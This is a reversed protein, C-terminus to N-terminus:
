HPRFWVNEALFNNVHFVAVEIEGFLPIYKPCLIPYLINMTYHVSGFTLIMSETAVM